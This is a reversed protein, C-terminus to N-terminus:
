RKSKNKEYLHLLKDNSVVLEVHSRQLCALDDKCAVLEREKSELQLELCEIRSHLEM